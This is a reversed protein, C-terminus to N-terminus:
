DIILDFFIWVGCSNGAYKLPHVISVIQLNLETRTLIIRGRVKTGNQVYISKYLITNQFNSDRYPTRDSNIYKKKLWNLQSKHSEGALNFLPGRLLLKDFFIFLCLALSLFIYIDLSLSFYVLFTERYPSLLCFALCVLVSQVLQSSVQPSHNAVVAARTILSTDCSVELVGAQFLLHINYLNTYEKTNLNNDYLELNIHFQHM